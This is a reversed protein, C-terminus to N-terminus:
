DGMAREISWEYIYLRNFLAGTSVGIERAWEAVTQTRGKYTVWRNNGRNNGQTKGTAWRCNEPSYPGDNDIRDLTHGEPREGMDALFNEFSEWRAAYTIGRGAYRPRNAADACRRKMGCWSVYTPSGTYGHTKRYRNGAIRTGHGCGCTTTNGSVLSAASVEVSNGCQCHCLWYGVTTGYKARSEAPEAVALKGFQKGTLDKRNHAAERRLCGCSKTNGYQLNGTTVELEAGCECQCLWYRQSKGNPKLRSPATSIVRLRGFSQGALDTGQKGM